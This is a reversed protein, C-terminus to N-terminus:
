SSHGGLVLVGADLNVVAEGHGLLAGPLVRATSRGINDLEGVMGAGEVLMNFVLIPVLVAVPSNPTWSNILLLRGGPRSLAIAIDRRFLGSSM